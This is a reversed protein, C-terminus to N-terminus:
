RDILRQELHEKIGSKSMVPLLVSMTPTQQPCTEPIRLKRQWIDM